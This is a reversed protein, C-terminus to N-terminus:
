EERINKARALVPVSRDIGANIKMFTQPGVIGDAILGAARQFDKVKERFAEDYYILGQQLEPDKQLQGLQKSLWQIEPGVTGVVIDGHYVPPLKWLVTYENAWLQELASQTFSAVNGGVEITGSAGEWALLTVLVQKSQRDNIDYYRLKIIAPRNVRQLDSLSGQRTLCGLKKQRAVTCLKAASWDTMENINTNNASVGWIKLISRYAHGSSAHGSLLQHIAKDIRRDQYPNVESDRDLQSLGNAQATISTKEVAGYRQAEYAAQGSTAIMAAFDFSEAKEQNDGTSSYPHRGVRNGDLNDEPMRLRAPKSLAKGDKTVISESVSINSPQSTSDQQINQQARHEASHSGTSHGVRYEANANSVESAVATTVDKNSGLAIQESAVNMRTVYLGAVGLVLLVSVIAAGNFLHYIKKSRKGLVEKYASLVVSVTVKRRGIGFAGLLSRDAILNILRPIGRSFYHILRLAPQSFFVEHTGAVSLRHQIYGGLERYSLHELHYRATVRQALQRLERRKFLVQLEPQGLLVIQLLKAENTELNTLLRLQELVSPALNQAEDIILVTKRGQAHAALLYRNLSDILEKQSFGNNEIKFEDCITSLLGLVSLKPNFIFAVDCGEPMQEMFCRCVTTKGTGVEGTLLIFGGSSTVGYVLHALAEQHQESMYLFRPNPAISFPSEKLGFYELYM